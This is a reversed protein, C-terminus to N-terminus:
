RGTSRTARLGLKEARDRRVFIQVRQNVHHDLHPHSFLSPMQISAALEYGLSGNLLGRHVWEPCFWHLEQDEPGVTLVFEGDLPRPGPRLTQLADRLQVGKPMHPMKNIRGALQGTAIEFFEVRDGPRVYRELWASAAYRPDNWLLYTLDAGRLLEFGCGALIVFWATVRLVSRGSQIGTSLAHAAFCALIFALPLMFRIATHRVPFIVGLFLLPIALLFVLRSRGRFLSLLIGVCAALFLPWGLSDVVEQFSEGLLGMYGALDDSYRYYWFSPVNGVVAHRVFDLHRFYADPRVALGSAVVYVAASALLGALPAKWRSWLGMQGQGQLARLHFPLLGLPLLILVAYSQDKTAIALAAFVGMWIARKVTWGERLVRASLLFVLSCWFLAPVDVNSMKAYYFMPYMLMVFVGALVAATRDWLTKATFYAVVVTGAGMLVSVGRAILVLGQLFAAPDAFGYPYAASLHALKGTVMQLLLYPAYGVALLLYHFLPYKTPGAEGGTFISHAWALPGMPAIEDPGWPQTRGLSGEPLGWGIGPLYLAVGLVGLLVPMLLYWIWKERSNM